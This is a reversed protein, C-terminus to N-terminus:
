SKVPEPCLRERREIDALNAMGQPSVFFQGRKWAFGDRAVGESGVIIQYEGEGLLALFYDWMEHSFKTPPDIYRWGKERLDAPVIAQEIDDFRKRIEAADM